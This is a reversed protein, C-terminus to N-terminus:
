ICSSRPLGQHIKAYFKKRNERLIKKRNATHGTGTKQKVEQVKGLCWAVVGLVEAVQHRGELKRKRFKVETVKGEGCAREEGRVSRNLVVM